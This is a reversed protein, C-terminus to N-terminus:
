RKALDGWLAQVAALAALPATEARLVRPGLAVGDFGRAAAAETEAATLGGEPGVLLVLEGAPPALDALGRGAGPDLVLRTAHGGPLGALADGLAAPPALTPLRARGCQEAAAVMVGRWHTLRQGAQRADLKVGCRATFVPVLATAGLEVSKQLAVDMRSGRTIALLLRVPLPSEPAAAVPPSLELRVTHRTAEVITAPYDLGDGDFLLCPDGPRLRLVRTLYHARDGALRAEAAGALRDDTHVRPRRM